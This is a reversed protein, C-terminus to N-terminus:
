IAVLTLIIKILLVFFRAWFYFSSRFTSPPFPAVNVEFGKQKAQSWFCEFHEVKNNVCDLIVMPFFGDDLTKNFAKFLSKRYSEEVEAEYVYETGQFLYLSMLCVNRWRWPQSNM